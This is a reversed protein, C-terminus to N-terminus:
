QDTEEAEEAEDAPSEDETEGSDAGQNEGGQQEMQEMLEELEEESIDEPMPQQAPEPEPLDEASIAKVIDVVFILAGGPRGEATMGDEEAPGYASDEPLVLLLRDGVHHGAIGETWGEIVGGDLSFSLPEGPEGEEDWSSDFEEGDEWRWGSYQVFLYDDDAIEEGSGEVLVETSVESPPEAEGDHDVLQPEQGVENEVQPLEGSQEQTEGDAYAPYQDTLEMVTLQAEHTGDEAAPYYVALESGITVGEATLVEYYFEDLPQGTQQFTPMWVMAPLTETFNQQLVTGDEPDAMAMRFELISDQSIEEGDGGSLLRSSGEQADVPSHLIVEPEGDDRIHLEVDDLAESDGLNGEDTGGCATLLLLAAAPAALRTTRM